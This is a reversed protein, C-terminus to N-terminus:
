LKAQLFVMKRQCSRHHFCVTWYPRLSFAFETFYEIVCEFIYLIINVDMVEDFTLM